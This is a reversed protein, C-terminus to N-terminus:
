LDNPPYSPRAEKGPYLAWPHGREWQRQGLVHAAAGPDSRVPGEPRPSVWRFIHLCVSSSDEARQPCGEEVVRRKEVDARYKASFIKLFLSLSFLFPLHQLTERRM